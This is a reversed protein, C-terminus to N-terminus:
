SLAAGLDRPVVTSGRPYAATVTGARDLLALLRTVDGSPTLQLGALLSANTVGDDPRFPVRDVAASLGAPADADSEWQALQEVIKARAALRSAEERHLLDAGMHLALSGLVLIAVLIALPPLFRRRRAQGRRAALAAM